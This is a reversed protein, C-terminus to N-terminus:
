YEMSSMKRIEEKDNYSSEVSNAIYDDNIYNKIDKIANRSTELLYEDNKFSEEFVFNLDDILESRTDAIVDVFDIIEYAEAEEIEHDTFKIFEEKLFKVSKEFKM